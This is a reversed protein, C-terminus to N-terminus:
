LFFHPEEKKVREKQGQQQKAGKERMKVLGGTFLLNPQAVLSRSNKTKAIRQAQTTAEAKQKHKKKTAKGVAEM